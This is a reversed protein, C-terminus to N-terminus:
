IYIGRTIYLREVHTIIRVTEGLVILKLLLVLGGCLFVKEKGGATNGM